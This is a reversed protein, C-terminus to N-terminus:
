CRTCQVGYVTCQVTNAHTYGVMNGGSPYDVPTEVCLFIGRSTDCLNQFTELYSIYRWTVMVVMIVMFVMIVMVVM